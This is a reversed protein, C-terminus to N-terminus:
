RASARKLQPAKAKAPPSSAGLAAVAVGLACVAGLGGMIMIKKKKADADQEAPTQPASPTVQAAPPPVIAPDIGPLPFDPLPAVPAPAPPDAAHELYASAAFGYQPGPKDTLENATVPYFAGQAPGDIRVQSHRVIHAVIVASTNPAARLNLPDTQTVVTATSGQALDGM